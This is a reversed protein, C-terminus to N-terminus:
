ATEDWSQTVAGNSAFGCSIEARGDFARSMNLPGIACTAALTCSAEFQLTVTGKASSELDTNALSGGDALAAPIPAASTDDFEMVGSASGDLSLVTPERTRFGGDGFGSTDVIGTDFTADFAGAKFNWGSPLSVSGGTGQITKKAM